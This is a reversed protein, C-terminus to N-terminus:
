FMDLEIRVKDSVMAIFESNAPKGVIYSVTYGFIENINQINGRTWTVEIAHRISREVRSPTSSFKTALTPYLYKTISNLKTVDLVIILIAERLFRYGNLNAPIGIENLIQTTKKFIEKRKKDVKEEKSM